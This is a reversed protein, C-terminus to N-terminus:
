WPEAEPGAPPSRDRLGGIGVRSGFGPYAVPQRNTFSIINGCHHLRFYLSVTNQYSSMM